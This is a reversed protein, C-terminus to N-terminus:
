ATPALHPNGLVVWAGLLVNAALTGTVDFSLRVYRKYGRYQILRYENAAITAAVATLDGDYDAADVATYTDDDDSEELVLGVKKTAEYAGAGIVAGFVCSEFGQLDISEGEIDAAAVAPAAAELFKIKSLLDKM